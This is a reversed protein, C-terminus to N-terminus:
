KFSAPVLYKCLEALIFGSMEDNDAEYLSRFSALDFQLAKVTAELTAITAAMERATPVPNEEQKLEALQKSAADRLFSSLDIGTRKIQDLVQEDFFLSIRKM